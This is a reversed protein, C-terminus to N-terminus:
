LGVEMELRHTRDSLIFLTLLDAIAPPFIIRPKKSHSTRQLIWTMWRWKDGDILFVSLLSPVGLCM